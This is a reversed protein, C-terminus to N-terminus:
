IASGSLIGEQEIDIDNLPDYPNYVEINDAYSDM